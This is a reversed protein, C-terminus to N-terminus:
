SIGRKSYKQCHNRRSQLKSITPNWYKDPRPTKVELFKGHSNVATVIKTIGLDVVQYRNNDGYGKKVPEYGVSIFYKNDKQFISVEKVNGFKFKAPIKFTLPIDSYRHSFQVM